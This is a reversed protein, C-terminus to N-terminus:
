KAEGGQAAFLARVTEITDADAAQKDPRYRLVRAFRLALGGPYRPSVQLDNYAIEVVLEPRVYVTLPDRNIERALLEQTQWALLADTLGKFTKGLMVFNNNLPDRAGLHLNSLTGTRRGHGWEAALVVLDLTHARKIKLWSAGRNGAEYPADLAKAMIGEHGRALADQFFQEALEGDATIIRPVLLNTPVVQTLAAVREHTPQATLDQGDRYLCDFFMASLPIETRLAEVDLKRGFRRMTVQFPLPRGEPAFAIAEGDLVLTNAPLAQLTAVIEPVAATVDNSSRTFIRVDNGSKHAQIRAGDLKWEFAAQGLAAIATVVDAAPQALMPAFATLPRLLFSELGSSGGLSVHSLAARAVAGIQGGYMAARRVDGPPLSAASAIADLMIGALAGQRLEGTLLRLLFEREALTAAGFLERLQRTREQAAGKGSVQALRQLRQDVDLLTLSPSAAAPADNAGRLNVHSIGIRGQRIEGSLFAVGIEIAEDALPQLTAAIIQIKAARSSTAAIRTSAAAIDALSGV